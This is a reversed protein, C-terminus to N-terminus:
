AVGIDDAAVAEARIEAVLAHGIREQGVFRTLTLRM